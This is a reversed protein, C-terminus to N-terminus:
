DHISINQGEASVLHPNKPSQIIKIATLIFNVNKSIRLQIYKSIVECKGGMFLNLTLYRPQWM